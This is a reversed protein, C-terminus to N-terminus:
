KEKIHEENSHLNLNICRKNRTSTYKDLTISCFKGAWKKMKFKEKINSKLEYLFTM